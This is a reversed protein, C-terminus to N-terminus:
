QVTMLYKLIVKALELGGHSVFGDGIVSDYVTVSNENFVLSDKAKSQSQLKTKRWLYYVQTHNSKHHVYFHSNGGKILEFYYM